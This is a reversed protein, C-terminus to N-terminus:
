SCKPSLKPRSKYKTTSDLSLFDYMEPTYSYQNQSLALDRERECSPPPPLSFSTKCYIIQHHCFSDPSPRIGSDLILNPQDTFLLDICTPNKNPEFNTPESIVQPLGLYSFLNDIETEEIATNGDPWWLQSLANFDGAM